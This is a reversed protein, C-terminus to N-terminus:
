EIRIRVVDENDNSDDIGWLRREQDHLSKLSVVAIQAFRIRENAERIRDVKDKGDLGTSEELTQNAEVIIAKLREIAKKQEEIIFDKDKEISFFPLDITDIHNKLIKPKINDVTKSKGGGM